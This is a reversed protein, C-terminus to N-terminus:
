HHKRITHDVRQLDLFIKVFRGFSDQPKLHVVFNIKRIIKTLCFISVTKPSIGIQGEKTNTTTAGHYFM